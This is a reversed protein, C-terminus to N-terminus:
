STWWNVTCRRTTKKHQGRTFHTFIFLIQANLMCVCKILLTNTNLKIDTRCTRISTITKALSCIKREKSEWERRWGSGSCKRHENIILQAQIISLTYYYVTRTTRSPERHAHTHEVNKTRFWKMHGNGGLHLAFTEGDYNGIGSGGIWGDMKGTFTHKSKALAGCSGWFCKISISYQVTRSRTYM